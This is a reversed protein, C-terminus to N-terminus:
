LYQDFASSVLYPERRLTMKNNRSNIDQIFKNVKKTRMKSQVMEQLTEEIKM